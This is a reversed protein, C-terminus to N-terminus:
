VNADLCTDIENWYVTNQEQITTIKVSHVYQM